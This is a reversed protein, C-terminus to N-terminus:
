NKVASIKFGGPCLNQFAGEPDYRSAVDRIRRINEQGYSQLVEQSTHAYNLYLWPIVGGEITTAFDRVQELLAQVKPRAWEELASTRVSVAAQMIIGDHSNHELGLVNGIRSVTLSQKVYVLPLPQFAVHSTFDEDPIKARLEKALQNHLEAAKVIISADNKFTM